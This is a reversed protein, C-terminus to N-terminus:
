IADNQQLGQAALIMRLKEEWQTSMQALQENMDKKIEKIQEKAERKVEEVRENAEKRTLELQKILQVKTPRGGFYESINKGPGYARLYGNKEAGLVKEFIDDDNLSIEGEKQQKKFQDFQVIVDQQFADVQKGKKRKRSEMFVEVRSPPKGNKQEMEYRLRAYSKTVIYPPLSRKSRNAKNQTSKKQFDADSWLNVLYKWEDAAVLKPKNRLRLQYGAKSDFYKKKLKYRYDRYLDSMKGLIASKRGESVDFNFKELVIDWMHNIKDQEIEKWSNVKLPCCTRSRVIAQHDEDFEVSLKQGEQLNIIEVCRTPGRTKRKVANSCTSNTSEHEKAEMVKESENGRSSNEGLSTSMFIDNKLLAFIEIPREKHM